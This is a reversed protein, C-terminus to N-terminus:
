RLLERNCAGASLGEFSPMELAGALPLCQGTRPKEDMGLVNSPSPFIRDRREHADRLKEITDAEALTLAMPVTRPDDPRMLPM